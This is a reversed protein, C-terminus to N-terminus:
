DSPKPQRRFTVRKAALDADAVEWGAELWTRCHRADPKSQNEWWQRYMRASGPLEIGIKGKDELDEFTLTVEDSVQHQLFATLAYYKTM